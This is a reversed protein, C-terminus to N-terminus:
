GKAAYDTDLYGTAGRVDIRKWGLLIGVGRVLDVASIIAGNTGYVERFPRLSPAKGQGWLWIQTAEKEGRDHRRRNIPHGRFISHSEKMLHGLLESGPGRPLYNVISQEPIDHPPQTITENSFPAPGSSRYLLLNRYSVGAHFELSAA